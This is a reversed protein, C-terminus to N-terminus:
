HEDFEPIEMVAQAHRPPAFHTCILDRSRNTLEGACQDSPCHHNCYVNEDTPSHLPKSLFPLRSCAEGCGAKGITNISIKGRIMDLRKVTDFLVDVLHGRSM